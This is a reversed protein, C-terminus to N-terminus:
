FKVISRNGHIDACSLFITGYVDCEAQLFLKKFELDGVSYDPTSDSILQSWKIDNVLVNEICPLPFTITISQQMFLDAFISGNIRMPSAQIRETPLIIQSQAGEFSDSKVDDCPIMYINNNSDLKQQLAYRVLPNKSYEGVICVRSPVSSLNLGEFSRIVSQITEQFTQNRNEAIRLVDYANDYTSHGDKEFFVAKWWALTQDDLMDNTLVESLSHHVIEQFSRIRFNGDKIEYIYISYDLSNISIVMVEDASQVEEAVILGYLYARPIVEEGALRREIYDTQDKIIRM